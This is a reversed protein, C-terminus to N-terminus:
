VGLEFADLARGDYATALVIEPPNPTRALMQALELGDLGPMRIDLFVVDIRPPAKGDPQLIALAKEGDTATLVTGIRPEAELVDVLMSLSHPEDDVALVVLGPKDGNGNMLRRETM